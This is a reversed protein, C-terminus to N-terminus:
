RPKDEKRVTLYLPYYVQFFIMMTSVIGGRNLWLLLRILNRLRGGSAEQEFKFSTAALRERFIEEGLSILRLSYDRKLGRVAKRLWFPNMETRLTRAFSPDRGCVWKLWFLLLGKWLVPPMLVYYHGEFFSLYNPIEFHIIGNPRVVRACERLVKAPDKTHELVNASYVIDFSEDAFPLEEGPSTIIREPDVGNLECLQKSVKVTETFGESEPEVGTVDLGFHRTWVVLNTGYGCGVELIRKGRPNVFRSLIEYRRPSKEPNLIDRALVMPSMKGFKSLYEGNAKAVQGVVEEPIKIPQV